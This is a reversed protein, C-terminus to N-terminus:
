QTFASLPVHVPDAYPWHANPQLASIRFGGPPTVALLPDDQLEIVTNHFGTSPFTPYLIKLFVM